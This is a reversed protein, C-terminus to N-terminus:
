LNLRRENCGDIDMMWIERKSFVANRGTGWGFDCIVKEFVISRGDQSISFGDYWCNNGGEKVLTLEHTEINIKYLGDVYWFTFYIDKNNPHVKVNLIVHQSGFDKLATVNAIDDPTYSIVSREKRGALIGPRWDGYTNTIFPGIEQGDPSSKLIAINPSTGRSFVFESTVINPMLMGDSHQNTLTDSEATDMKIRVLNRGAGEYYCWNNMCWIPQCSTVINQQIIQKECTKWNYKIISTGGDVIKEIYAIEDGNNPNFCPYKWLTDNMSKDDSPFYNEPIGGMFPPFSHLSDPSESCHVTTDFAVANSVTAKEKKCTAVLVSFMIALYIKM